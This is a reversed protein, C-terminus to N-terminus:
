NNDELLTAAARKEIRYQTLSIFLQALWALTIVVTAATAFGTFISAVAFPSLVLLFIGFMRSVPNDGGKLFMGVGFACIYLSLFKLHVPYALWDLGHAIELNDTISFLILNEIADAAGALVAVIMFVLWVTTGAKLYAAYFFLGIFATYVAMYAMDLQNGQDMAQIREARLPDDLPGFVAILDAQTRAFEFAIVPSELGIPEAMEQPFLPFIIVSFIILVLGLVFCFLWANAIKV